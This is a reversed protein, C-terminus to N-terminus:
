KNLKGTIFLNLSIAAMLISFANVFHAFVRHPALSSQNPTRLSDMRLYFMIPLTFGVIPNTTAGVFTIVDSIDPTAVAAIFCTTVILLTVYLNQDINMKMGQGLYLEEITDKCPMLCLPSSLIVGALLLFQAGLIWGNKGYPAKMINQQMMIADFNPYSAFTAFGFFGALIYCIVSFITSFLIVRQM